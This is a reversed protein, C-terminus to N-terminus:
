LKEYTAVRDKFVAHREVKEVESLDKELEEIIKYNKQIELVFFQDFM